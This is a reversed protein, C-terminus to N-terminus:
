HQGIKSFVFAAVVVLFLQFLLYSLVWSIFNRQGDAMWSEVQKSPEVEWRFFLPHSAKINYTAEAQQVALRYYARDGANMLRIGGSAQPNNSNSCHFDPQNGSCCGTGVAWFDYTAPPTAGFVIPAVCYVEQNKFGMSHKIDLQSGPAFAVVGADLLQQGLMRNPYVNTYNNLNGIDYYRGTNASFNASGQLFGVVWALFLSLAFFILWSPEREGAMGAFIKLRGAFAKVAVGVVLALLGFVVLTSITPQLYHFSFAMIGFVLVFLSWPVLTCVIMPVVNMRKRPGPVFVGKNFSMSGDYGGFSGTYQGQHAFNKEEGFSPYM